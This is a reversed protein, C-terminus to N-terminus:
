VLLLEHEHNICTLMNLTWLVHEDEKTLVKFSMDLFTVLYLFVDFIISLTVFFQGLEVDCTLDQVTHSNCAFLKNFVWSLLQSYRNCQRSLWDEVSFITFFGFLEFLDTFVYHHGLKKDNLLTWLNVLKNIIKLISSLMNLQLVWCLLRRFADNVCCEVFHLSVIESVNMLTKCAIIAKERFSVERSLKHFFFEIIVGLDAEVHLNCHFFVNVTINAPFVELSALMVLNDRNILHEFLFKEVTVFHREQLIELMLDHVLKLTCLSADEVFFKIKHLDFVFISSIGFNTNCCKVWDEQRAQHVLLNVFSLAHKLFLCIFSFTINVFSNLYRTFGLDEVLLNDLCELFPQASDFNVAMNILKCVM